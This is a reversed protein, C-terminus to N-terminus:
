ADPSLRTRLRAMITDRLRTEHEPTAITTFRGAVIDAMGAEAAHLLDAQELGTDEVLHRVAHELFAEPSLARGEAVQHEITGQLEDPIAITTM